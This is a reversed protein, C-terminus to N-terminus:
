QGEVPAAKFQGTRVRRRVERRVAELAYNKNGTVKAVELNNCHECVFRTTSPELSYFADANTDDYVLEGDCRPCFCWLRSIENGFWAWRWKAGFLFDEVYRLHSPGETESSRLGVFFRIVTVLALLGLVGLAWGPTAYTDGLVRIFSGIQEWVWHMAAKVPSWLEGAVALVIGGVVTAIVGNRVSHKESESM